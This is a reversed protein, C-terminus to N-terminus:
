LAQVAIGLSDFLDGTLVQVSMEAVRVRVTADLLRLRCDEVRDEVEILGRLRGRGGEYNSREAQLQAQRLELEQKLQAYERRVAELQSLRLLWESGATNAEADVQLGAAQTKIQQAERRARLGGSDLPMELALGVYWGRHRPRTTVEALADRESPKLSNLNYGTEVSLDPQELNRALDLRIQEQEYRLQAMRYSPWRELLQAPAETTPPTMARLSPAETSLADAAAFQTQLHRGRPLNMLNRVRVNSETLTQEAKAL